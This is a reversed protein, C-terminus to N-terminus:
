RHTYKDMRRAAQEGEDDDLGIYRMTTKSVSHCFLDQVKDINEGNDCYQRYGYSKRPTHTGVSDGEKAIKLKLLARKYAKGLSDRRYHGSESESPYIFESPDKGLVFDKLIKILEDNLHVTREMERRTKKRVPKNNKIRSTMIHEIKEEVVVMKKLKIAKRLDSITLKVVDGGRLGTNQGILWFIYLREDKSKLYNQIRELDKPDKVTLAACDKSDLDDDEFDNEDLERIIKMTYNRNGRDSLFNLFQEENEKFWKDKIM